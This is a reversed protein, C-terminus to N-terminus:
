RQAFADIYVIGDVVNERTVATNFGNAELLASINHYADRGRHWEYYIACRHPLVGLLAPLLAHEEGEIDLKLLLQEPHLEKIVRCLDAVRVTNGEAGATDLRGGCGGGSFVAVGDRTSVAEARTDVAIQNQRLNTQLASFNRENPEFAVIRAHRFRAGALLSFYGHFAGCDLIVDPDLNLRDLDYVEDMFVEEYVSFESVDAADLRIGFGALRAPRFWLKPVRRGLAPQTRSLALLMAAPWDAIGYASDVWRQMEALKREIRALM